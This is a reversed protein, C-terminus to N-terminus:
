SRCHHMKSKEKASVGRYPWIMTSKTVQFFLYCSGLSKMLYRSFQILSIDRQWRTVYCWSGRLSYGTLLSPPKGFRFLKLLTIPFLNSIKWSCILWVNFFLSSWSFLLSSFCLNFAKKATTFFFVSFPQFESFFFIKFIHLKSFPPGFLHIWTQHLAMKYQFAHNAITKMKQRISMYTKHPTLKEEYMVM